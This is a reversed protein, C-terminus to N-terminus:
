PKVQEFREVVITLSTVAVDSGKADLSPAEYKSAWAQFFNWRIKEEGLDDLLIVSGNKRKLDGSVASMHWEYLEMSDTIGWKLTIDPYSVKGILKRVSVPDGGERYEVVEVDSGLGSCESFNAQVIGDIELLFRYNKYPDVRAM